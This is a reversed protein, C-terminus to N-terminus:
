LSVKVQHHGRLVPMRGPMLTEGARVGAMIDVEFSRAWGEEDGISDFGSACHILLDLGGLEAIATAVFRRTADGDSLDAAAGFHNGATDGALAEIANRVGDADRACLAVSCGEEALRRATYWGIGRSGRSGGLIM